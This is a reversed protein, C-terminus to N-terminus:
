SKKLVFRCISNGEPEATIQGPAPQSAKGYEVTELTWGDKVTLSYSQQPGYNMAIVTCRDQGTPHETLTLAVSSRDIVKRDTCDRFMQQYLKYYDTNEFAKPQDALIVEMPCTLFYIRGKSYTHCIFAPNGDAETGIVESDQVALNLRRENRLRIMGTGPLTIDVQTNQRMCNSIVKMGTMNEFGAM